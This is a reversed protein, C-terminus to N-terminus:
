SLDEHLAIDEHRWRRVTEIFEDVSEDEPWFDGQLDELRQVIAPRQREQRMKVFLAFELVQIQLDPSLEDVISTLEDRVNKSLALEAM